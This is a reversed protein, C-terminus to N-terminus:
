QALRAAIMADVNKIANDLGEDATEYEAEADSEASLYDSEEGSNARAENARAELATYIRTIAQKGKMGSNLLEMLNLGLFSDKPTKEELGLSMLAESVLRVVFVRHKRQEKLTKLIHMLQECPESVHHGIAQAKLAQVLPSNNHAAVGGFGPKVPNPPQKPAEKPRRTSM